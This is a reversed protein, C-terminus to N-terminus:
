GGAYYEYNDANKIAVNPKTKALNRCATQGAAIEDTHGSAHSHEHLVIGAKSNTGTPPTSWFAKCIYITFTGKFTYAAVGLKCKPGSLDYTFTSSEMAKIIKTYVEKVNKFRSTTHLGFWEKYTSDKKLAQLASTSLNYGDKHAKIIKKKQEANGNKITPKKAKGKKSKKQTSSEQYSQDDERRRAAEGLTARGYIGSKVTFKKTGIKVVVSVRVSQGEKKMDLEPKTVVDPLGERLAVEYDGKLSVQYCSSIDVDTSVSGGPQIKIYDEPGPAHRKVLPGDYPVLEGDRKVELCDSFLGELPTQYPLVYINKGSKNLVEFKLWFPTESSQKSKIVMKANVKLMNIDEM